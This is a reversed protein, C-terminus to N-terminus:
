DWEEGTIAEVGKKCVAEVHWKITPTEDAYKSPIHIDIDVDNVFKSDKSIIEEARDILEQGAAKIQEVLHERYTNKKVEISM